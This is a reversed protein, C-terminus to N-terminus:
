HSLGKYVMWKPTGGHSQFGGNGPLEDNGSPIGKDARRGSVQSAACYGKRLPDFDQGFVHSELLFSHYILSIYRYSFFMRFFIYIYM